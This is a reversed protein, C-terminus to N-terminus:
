PNWICRMQLNYHLTEIKQRWSSEGIACSLAQLQLYAAALTGALVPLVFLPLEASCYPLSDFQTSFLASLNKLRSRGINSAQLQLFWLGLVAAFFGKWYSSVQFFSSTVEIALVWRDTSWIHRGVLLVHQRSHTETTVNMEIHRFLNIHRMLLTAISAAICVFPGEKGILLGSGLALVVGLAKAVLMRLGLFCHMRYGSMLSKLQPIGSGAAQPHLESTTAAAISAMITAWAVFFLYSYWWGGDAKSIINALQGRAQQLLDSVEDIMWAFLSTKDGLMMLFIWSRQGECFQIASSVFRQRCTGKRLSRQAAILECDSDSGSDSGSDYFEPESDHASLNSIPTPVKTSIGTLGHEEPHLPSSSEVNMPANLNFFDGETQDDVGKGGMPSVASKANSNMAGRLEIQALKSSKRRSRKQRKSDLKKNKFSAPALIGSSDLSTYRGRTKDGKAPMFFPLPSRSEKSRPSVRSHAMRHSYSGTTPDFSTELKRDYVMGSISRESRVDIASPASLEPRLRLSAAAGEGGEGGAGGDGASNASRGDAM